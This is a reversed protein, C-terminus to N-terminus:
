QMLELKSCAGDTTITINGHWSRPNNGRERALYIYTGSPKNITAFGVSGCDPSTSSTQYKTLTGNVTGSNDVWVDIPNTNSIRTWFIISGNMMKPTITKEPQCGLILAFLIIAVSTKKM